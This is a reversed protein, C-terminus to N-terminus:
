ATSVKWAVKAIWDNVSQVMVETIMVIIVRLFPISFHGPGWTYQIVLCTPYVITVYVLSSNIVIYPYLSTSETALFTSLTHILLRLSTLKFQELKLLVYWNHLVWFKIYPDSALRNHSLRADILIIGLRGRRTLNM